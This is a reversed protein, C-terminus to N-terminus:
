TPQLYTHTSVNMVDRTCKSVLLKNNLCLTLEAGGSAFNWGHSFMIMSPFLDVCISTLDSLLVNRLFGLIVASYGIKAHEKPKPNPDELIRGRRGESRTVKEMDCYLQKEQKAWIEQNQSTGWSIKNHECPIGKEEKARTFKGTMGSSLLGTARALWCQWVIAKKARSQQTQQSWM